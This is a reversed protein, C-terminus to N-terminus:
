TDPEGITAMKGRGFASTQQVNPFREWPYGLPQALVTPGIKQASCAIKRDIGMVLDLSLQM